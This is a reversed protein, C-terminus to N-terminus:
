STKFDYIIDLKWSNQRKHFTKLILWYFFVSLSDSFLGCWIFIQTIVVLTKIQKICKLSKVWWLLLKLVSVMQHQSILRWQSILRLGVLSFLDHLSYHPVMLWALNYWLMNWLTCCHAILCRTIPLQWDEYWLQSVFVTCYDEWSLRCLMVVALSSLLAATLRQLIMNHPWKHHVWGGRIYDLFSLETDVLCSLLTVQLYPFHLFLVLIM